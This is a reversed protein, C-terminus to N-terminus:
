AKTHLILSLKLLYQVPQYSVYNGMKSINRFISGHFWGVHIVCIWKSVIAIPPNVPTYMYPLRLSVWQHYRLRLIPGRLFLLLQNLGFSVQIPLIFGCPQHFLYMQNCPLLPALPIGIVLFTESSWHHSSDIAIGYMYIWFLAQYVVHIFRLAFFLKRNESARKSKSACCYKLTKKTLWGLDQLAIVLPYDSVLLWVHSTFSCVPMVM